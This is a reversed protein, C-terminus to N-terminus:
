RSPVMGHSAASAGVVGGPRFSALIGRGTNHSGTLRRYTKREAGSTSGALFTLLVLLFGALMGLAWLDDPNKRERLM